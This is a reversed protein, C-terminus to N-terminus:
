CKENEQRSFIRQRAEKKGRDGQSKSSKGSAEHTQPVPPQVAGETSDLVLSHHIREESILNLNASPTTATPHAANSPEARAAACPPSGCYKAMRPTVTTGTEPGRKSFVVTMMECPTMLATLLSAAMGSSAQTISPLPRM